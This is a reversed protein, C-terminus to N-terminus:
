VSLTETVPAPQLAWLPHEGIVVPEPAPIAATPTPQAATPQAATPQTFIPGANATM